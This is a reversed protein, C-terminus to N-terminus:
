ADDRRVIRIRARCADNLPVCPRLERTRRNFWWYAYDGATGHLEDCAAAFQQWDQGVAQAVAKLDDSRTFRPVSVMVHQNLTKGRVPLNVPLQSGLLLGKGRVRGKSVYANFGSPTKNAQYECLDSAEHAAIVLAGKRAYAARFLADVEPVEETAPVYHILPASWDIGDLESVPDLFPVGAAVLEDYSAGSPIPREHRPDPISFEDKSDFLLRQCRFQEWWFNILESKGAGTDGLFLVRDNYRIGSDDSV